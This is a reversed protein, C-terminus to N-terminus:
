QNRQNKMLFLMVDQPSLLSHCIGNRCEAAACLSGFNFGRVARLTLSPSFDQSNTSFLVDSFSRPTWSLPQLNHTGSKLQTAWKPSMKSIEGKKCRPFCFIGNSDLWGLVLILARQCPSPTTWFLQQCLFRRSAAGLLATGKPKLSARTSFRM